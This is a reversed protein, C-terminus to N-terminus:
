VSCCQALSWAQTPQPDARECRFQENKGPNESACCSQLAGM